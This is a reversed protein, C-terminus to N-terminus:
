ELIGDARLRSKEAKLRSRGRGRGKELFMGLSQGNLHGRPRAAVPGWGMSVLVQKLVQARRYLRYLGALHTGSPTGCSRAGSGLGHSDWTSLIGAIHSAGVVGVLVPRTRIPLPQPLGPAPGCPDGPVGPPCRLRQSADTAAAALSQALVTDREYLLIRTFQCSANAPAPAGTLIEQYNDAAKLSFASELQPVSLTSFLRRFTAHKPRDGFVIRSGRAVAAVYALQEGDLEEQARQWLPSAAADPIRALESGIRVCLSSLPDGWLAAQPDFENGTCSGQSASMATEVVVADPAAELIFRGVYAECEAHTVGFLHVDAAPHRLLFPHGSVGWSPEAGPGDVSGCDSVSSVGRCQWCCGDPLSRRSQASAGKGGRCGASTFLRSSERAPLLLVHSGRALPAAALGRGGRSVAPRESASSYAPSNGEVRM